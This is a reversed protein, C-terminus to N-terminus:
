GPPDCRWNTALLRDGQGAYRAVQPFACLPRSRTIAGDRVNSAVIAAPAAGDGVWHDLAAMLDHGTDLATATAGQNGFANPGPGGHCHAMGPALFLRFFGDMAAQSGQRSRVAEYYALTDGVPAIPDSEGQYEIIRGGHARFAGLDPDTNNVVPGVLRDAYLVDRDSDFDQWRWTPNGLVWYRWFDTRAPEPGDIYGAWGAESSPNGGAFIRAGTRPDFLGAYIARLAAVQPATLCAPADGGPCLLMEPDFRCLAPDFVGDKEGTQRDCGDIAAQAIVPLKTAPIVEVGNPHNAAYMWLFYANLRTRNNGPAGLVMGDFDTPYRQAEALGQGGGTSCGFYYAHAADTGTAARLVPRAALLVAHVSRHGWDAMREPHGIVFSLDGDPGTHGSDGGAVAYGRALAAAMDGYGIAGAYGGNGVVELRGNWGITPVWVEFAIASDLRPTATGRVRCFAPVDLAATAGPPTFRGAAVPTSALLHAGELHISAALSACDGPASTAPQAAAAAPLMAVIGVMAAGLLTCQALGRRSTGVHGCLSRHHVRVM